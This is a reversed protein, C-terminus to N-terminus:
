LQLPKLPMVHKARAVQVSNEVPLVVFANALVHHYERHELAQQVQDLASAFFSPYGVILESESVDLVIFSDDLTSPTVDRNESQHFHQVIRVAYPERVIPQLSGDVIGHDPDSSEDAGIEENVDEEFLNPNNGVGENNDKRVPPSEVEAFPCYLAGLIDTGEIENQAPNEPDDYDRYNRSQLPITYVDKLTFRLLLISEVLSRLRFLEILKQIL